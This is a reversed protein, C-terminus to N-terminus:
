HSRNYCVNVRGRSSFRAVVHDDGAEEGEPKDEDGYQTSYLNQLPLHDSLRLITEVRPLTVGGFERRGSQIVAFRQDRQVGTFAQRLFANSSSTRSGHHGVKLVNVRLDSFDQVIESEVEWHVDGLLLLGAGAYRILLVLSSNNVHDSSHGPDPGSRSNLLYAELGPGFADTRGYRESVWEPIAPRYFEGGNYNVVDNLHDLLTLYSESEVEFGPDVVNMVKYTNLVATMGGYHDSHAHSILLWDITSGAPFGQDQMYDVVLQGGATRSLEGIDGADVLINMRGQGLDPTEIWIADGQGVDIFHVVLDDAKFRLNDPSCDAGKGVPVSLAGELDPRHFEPGCAVSLLALGLGTLLWSARRRIRFALPM